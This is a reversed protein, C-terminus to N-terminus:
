DESKLYDQMEAALEGLVERLEIIEPTLREDAYQEFRRLSCIGLSFDECIGRFRDDRLYLRRIHEASEPFREIAHDVARM